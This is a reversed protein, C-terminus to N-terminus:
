KWPNIEEGSGWQPGQGNDSDGPEPEVAPPAPLKLEVPLWKEYNSSTLGTFSDDGADDHLVANFLVRDQAVKIGTRPVAIELVYGEDNEQGDVSGLITAAFRVAANDCALTGKEADVTFKLTLPDGTANGSQIMLEMGDGATVNGDRREVLCYLNEDDYAFRFAAQAQSVSGIFLADQVGKWSRSGGEMAPTFPAANVRHNLVYKALMLNACSTEKGDIQRTFAAPFVGVFTHDDIVEVSGWVGRETFCQVPLGFEWARADGIRVNFLQNINCSLLMEGSRFQRLYPAAQNLFLNNQREAPGDDEGTPPGAAWNDDTYALGLHYKDESTGTRGFRSEFAVAIRESDNLQIAVPMQDTFITTGSGDVATGAKQRIIKGVATWTAGRDTSRLLATGSDGTTTNSDTFYVHVEKNSLQLASPEWTTGRYIVEPASWTRGHDTSRRMMIGNNLPNLRFGKNLRFAAFALIDGNDLVIADASSFLVRDAVESEYQNMDTKAFLPEDANQWTTLNLSLAYYVDHATPGQQYILLYSGNQLKKIRPYRANVASLPAQHRLVTYSRFDMEISSNRWEAAHSNLYGEEANLDHISTLDTEVPEPAVASGPKPNPHDDASSKTCAAASLALALLLLSNALQHYKLKM